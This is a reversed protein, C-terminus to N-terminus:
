STYQSSAWFLRCLSIVYLSLIYTNKAMLGVLTGASLILGSLLHTLIDGSYNWDEPM